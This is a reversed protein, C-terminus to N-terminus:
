FLLLNYIYFFMILTIHSNDLLWLGTATYTGAHTCPLQFQWRQQWHWILFQTWCCSLEQVLVTYKGVAIMVKLPRNQYNVML